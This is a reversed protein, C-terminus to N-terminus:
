LTLCIQAGVATLEEPDHTVLLVTRGRIRAKMDAMVLRRTDADLSRFPEDLLLLDWPALLARLIAVRRRMGGSLEATRSSPCDSLGVQRLAALAEQETLRPNVLRLNQVPTLSLCLRDEQFVASIRLESLGTISGSDAQELGMLIRLLTTKGAGSPAMLGSIKGAPLIASFRDLVQKEGFSKCLETIVIDDM